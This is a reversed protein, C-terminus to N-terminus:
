KCTQSAAIVQVPDLSGRNWAKVLVGLSWCWENGSDSSQRFSEPYSFSLAYIQWADNVIYTLFCRIIIKFEM